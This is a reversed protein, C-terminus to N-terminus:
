KRIQMPRWWRYKHGVVYLRGSGYFYQGSALQGTIQVGNSWDSLHNICDKKDFSAMIYTQRRRGRGYRSRTEYVFQRTSKIGGPYFVLPDDPNIDSKSIGEPMSLLAIIWGRSYHNLVRPTLSLKVQRAGIVNVTCYNPESLDIGDDVILEILHTGVPLSIQATVGNAECVNGDVVWSWYYDLEDGDQDFCASGCLNVDAWGNIWAYATIDPGADAVPRHNFEYAGMDIRGGIVRPLGDLDTENPEAVYNPDGANICPSVPLLHYDDNAVDVFCPDIDINGLGWEILNCPDYCTAPGGQLDTYSTIVASRDRNSLEKGGDWLICNTMEVNSPHNHSSSDCAVANGDWASNGAFTCNTLIPNSNDNYIGGGYNKTSNQSFVCNTITPSSDWNCIGGGRGSTSNGSFTCNTLTPSSNSNVMGGGYNRASNGIFTCNTVTPNSNFENCMGGGFQDYAFNESFTCNIVTPSSNDNYMGGGYPYGENGSFTCNTLAPNSRYNSIGGGYWYAFNTSFTCNTITPCGFRNYMGGGAYPPKVANGGTITFGDLVATKDTASGVVVNYSNDTLYPDFLLKRPNVNADNGYLDGSLVTEYLEINRANPDPEGFGAYGGMVAVGSVLQFTAWQSGSPPAPTYVGQAVLVQEFQPYKAALHLAERFETLANEWDTGINRGTADADVFLVHWNPDNDMETATVLSSIFDSASIRITTIGDLRDEDEAAALVVTQPVSYNSPNFTLTGGSQITIDPDGSEFAITAQVAGAPEIALAVTFAETQGEPVIVSATSLVFSQKASEYAGMDIIPATGYGVDPAAPDDVFRPDGYLDVIVGTPVANNNGADACASGALLSPNDDETGFIGDPGDADVFAPDSDINGVGWEIADCPDYCAVPGGQLDTYSIIIASYPGNWVEQGGDWLICNTIEVNAPYSHSYSECALANGNTASNGVFTCNIINLDGVSGKYMGGGNNQASNGSFICNTITLSGGSNYMGGGYEEALNASFACNTIILSGGSNYMGGGSVASNTSFTCSTITLDSGNNYMGGGSEASNTSFTCNTINPYSESSFMGGGHGALNGSFICDTVTASSQYNCMGGGNSNRALNGMFSCNTVIPSSKNYNCMGGGYGCSINGRFTCNTLTPNSHDNYTGGGSKPTSNRNFTCNTLTPGSSGANYMGGGRESASNTSFTCNAITPSGGSSYMGGGYANSGSGSANGAAITFGDLVATADTASGTVVHYSNDARSPESVLKLPDYVNVDNGNLDGSLITQYVNPDCENPDPAGCGVYGGRIAVGNKLQFAAARDGGPEAPTYTGDAVWIESGSAASAIADELHNYADAWTTGNNLGTANADVFITTASASVALFAATLVSIQRKM